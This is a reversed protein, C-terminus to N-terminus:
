IRHMGDELASPKTLALALELAQDRTMSRGGALHLELDEAVVTDRLLRLVREYEQQETYERTLGTRAVCADIYGLLRVIAEVPVVEVAGDDSLVAAAALHQLAWVFASAQPSGETLALVERAYARAATFRSSAICYAALNSLTHYLDGHEGLARLTVEAKRALQLARDVNGVRFEAEALQGGLGAAHYDAGMEEWMTLAEAFKARGLAVDGRHFCSQAMAVLINAQLGLRGHVRAVEIADAFLPESEELRGTFLMAHAALIQARAARWPEGIERYVDVLRLAAPIAAEFELNAYITQARAYELNAAVLAPTADSVIEGALELWRREALHFAFLPRMAVALRQGLLTDRRAELTWAFVSQFNDLELKARAIWATTPVGDYLREQEEAFDVYATAHLHAVDTSEGRAALKEAAYQRFTQLLGYRPESAALDTVVLSKDVLSSLVELTVLEDAAEDSFVVAAQALACGGSFVSLREFLRQEAVSLLDYSWDILAHMTQHRPLATRKGATLLRLQRDLKAALSRVPLINVRAAALEIALPIGDLRRCIEAVSPADDDGLTFEHDVAQARQTFLQIAAYGVSQAANIGEAEISTPFRLPTLRFTREGAIRLPERSTALICLSTCDRLLGDAVVAAEDIVHECNDFIVLLSKHKLQAVLTELSPEAPSLRISLTRAVADAVAAARAIRALEVFWVGDRTAEQLAQGIALATRTKGIGGSGTLTILRSHGLMEVIKAIDTERGVLDSRHQPLNTKSADKNARGDAGADSRLVARTLEVRSSVGYKAYIAAIHTEVTRPSLVLALAIDPGSKGSVLMDLIEAQRRSLSSASGRNVAGV